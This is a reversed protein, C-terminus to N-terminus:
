FGLIGAAASGLDEVTSIGHKALSGVDLPLATPDTLADRAIDIDDKAVGGADHAIRQAAQWTREAQAAHRRLADAADNLRAASTRLGRVIFGAQGFFADAAIGHWDLAALKGDLWSANGRAHQAHADVRDALANLDDVFSM